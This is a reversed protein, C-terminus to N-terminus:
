AQELRYVRTIDNSYGFYYASDHDYAGTNWNASGWSGPLTLTGQTGGVENSILTPPTFIPGIVFNAVEARAIQGIEPFDIIDDPTIGQTA